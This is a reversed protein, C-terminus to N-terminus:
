PHRNRQGFKLSGIVIDAGDSTVFGAFLAIATFLPFKLTLLLPPAPPEPKLAPFRRLTGSGKIQLPGPKSSVEVALTRPRM